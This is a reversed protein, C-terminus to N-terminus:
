GIRKKANEFIEKDKEIGIFERGMNKCAVGTTGSGMTPDLVTDGEKSYYKLIWEILAVPKQTPHLGRESKFELICTPLRPEYAHSSRGAIKSSYVENKEDSFKREYGDDKIPTKIHSSIDYYPPKRYFLYVSEHNRLPMSKGHLFGTKNSKIWIFDYKFYKHNSNILTAGFKATGTFFMPCNIKCIRNAQKWFEVLDIQSDWGCSTQGYPLDCFLLDVTDDKIGKMVELCDGNFM